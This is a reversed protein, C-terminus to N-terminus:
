QRIYASLYISFKNTITITDDKLTGVAAILAYAQQGAFSYSIILTDPNITMTAIYEEIGFVSYEDTVVSFRSDSSVSSLIAETDDPEIGTGAMFSVLTNELESNSSEFIINSTYGENQTQLINLETKWVQGTVANIRMAINVYENIFSVMWFSYELALFQASDRPQNQYLHARASDFFLLEQPIYVQESLFLLGARGAEIAQEMNIHDDAPEHLRERGPADWNRLISVIENESLIPKTKPFDDAANSIESVESLMPPIYVSTIFEASYLRNSKLEILRSTVEWGGVAIIVSLFIGAATLINRKNRRSNRSNM